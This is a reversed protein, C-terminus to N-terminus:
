LQIILIQLRDYVSGCPRVLNLVDTRRPQWRVRDENHTSGHSLYVLLTARSYPTHSSTRIAKYTPIM